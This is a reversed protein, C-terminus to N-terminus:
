HMVIQFCSGFGDCCTRMSSSKGERGIVGHAEGAPLSLFTISVSADVTREWSEDSVLNILELDSVRSFITLPLEM